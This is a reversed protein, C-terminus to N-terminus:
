FNTDEDEKKKKSPFASAPATNALVEDAMYSSRVLPGSFVARFGLAQAYEEYEKFTRESVYEAAPIHERSPPLYQGITVIDVGVDKLKGLLSFVDKRSEGFGVMFGSKIFVDSALESASRLVNLSRDFDAQPRINGYLSPITEVNHNLVTPNEDLVMKLAILDGKFDPILVEVKTDPSVRHIASITETFQEAGGDALDDRTVSTIVTYKLNLEKVARAVRYPEEPDVKDPMGSAISCFACNRTCVTGLILFTAQGRGFCRGRNPCRAEECVTSLHLKRLSHRVARMEPTVKLPQMFYRPKM